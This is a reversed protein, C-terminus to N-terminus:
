ELASGPMNLMFYNDAWRAVAGPAGAALVTSVFGISM